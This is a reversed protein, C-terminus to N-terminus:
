DAARDPRTKERLGSVFTPPKAPTRVAAVYSESMGAWEFGRGTGVEEVRGRRGRVKCGRGGGIVGSSYRELRRTPM